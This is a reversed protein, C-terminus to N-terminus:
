CTEHIVREFNITFEENLQVSDMSTRGVSDDEEELYM